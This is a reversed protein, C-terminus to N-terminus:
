AALEVTTPTLHELPFMTDELTRRLTDAPGTYTQAFTQQEPTRWANLPRRAAVLVHAASESVGFVDMLVAALPGAGRVRGGLDTHLPLLLGFLQRTPAPANSVPRAVMIVPQTNGGADVLRHEHIVLGGVQMAAHLADVCGHLDKPHKHGFAVAPSPIIQGPRYGHLRYVSNSWVTTGRSINWNFRGLDAPFSGLPGTSPAPATM